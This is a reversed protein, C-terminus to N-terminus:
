STKSLCSPFCHHCVLRKIILEPTLNQYCAPYMDFRTLLSTQIHAQRQSCVCLSIAASIIGSQLIHNRVTDFLVCEFFYALALKPAGTLGALYVWHFTELISQRWVKLPQQMRDMM